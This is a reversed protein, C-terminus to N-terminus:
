RGGGPHLLSGSAGPGQQNQTHSQSQSQSQQPHPRAQTPTEMFEDLMATLPGKSPKLGATDLTIRGGQAAAAGGVGGVGGISGGSLGSSLGSPGGSPGAGTISISPGLGSHGSQVSHHSDISLSKQLRPVAANAHTRGGSGGGGSGGDILVDDDGDGGGGGVAHLLDMDLESSGISSSLIDANHFDSSTGTTETSFTPRIPGHGPAHGLGHRMDQSHAHTHSHGHQQMPPQTLWAAYDAVGGGGPTNAASQSGMALSSSSVPVGSISSSTSISTSTSSPRLANVPLSHRHLAINGHSQPQPHAHMSPHQRGQVTPHQQQQLQQPHMMQPPMQSYPIAPPDFSGVGEYSWQRSETPDFEYQGAAQQQHQQQQQQAAAAISEYYIANQALQADIGLQPSLSAYPPTTHSSVSFDSPTNSAVSATHDPVYQGQQQHQGSAHAAHAAERTARRLIEVERKLRANERRVQKLEQVMDLCHSIIVSKSPRHVNHLSPMVGALQSFKANLAERRTREISNHLARREAMNEAVAGGEHQQFELEVM